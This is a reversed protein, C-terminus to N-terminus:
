NMKPLMIRNYWCPISLDSIEAYILSHKENLVTTVKKILNGKIYIEDGESLDTFNNILNITYTKKHSNYDSNLFSFTVRFNTNRKGNTIIRFPDTIIKGIGSIQGIKEKNEM